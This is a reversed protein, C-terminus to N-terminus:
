EGSLKYVRAYEVGKIWVSHEPQLTYLYALLDKPHDRQMQNIYIVVYDYALYDALTMEPSFEVLQAECGFDISYWTYALPYWSLIQQDCIRPQGRLYLAAENLGEGWGVTMVEPARKLGGMLPNYYTLYYPVNQLTYAVQMGLILVIMAYQIYKKGALRRSEGLWRIVAWWGAASVVDLPLYVPLYYRDFKKAGLSMIVTYVLVFLLLDYMNRRVQPQIESRKFVLLLLALGVGILGAPTSRWLYTLPYFYLYQSGKDADQYADVFQAGGIEGEAASLGYRLTKVLTGVPNAWMAPWLIYVVLLAVAGWVLLPLIAKRWIVQLDFKRLSRDWLFGPSEWLSAITVLGIMPILLFGPSICIFSLGAFAGSAALSIKNRSRLAHLYALVSVFMFTALMGNTHLFRSHAVYFPDFAILLFALTAVAAGFLRWAFYLGVLMALTIFVVVALRATAMYEMSGPGHKQFIQLLKTDGLAIQGVRQYEPFKIQYAIVGAWMTIVGPHGTQYTEAYDREGLAYFFSAARKAWTPEDATVFSGLSVTRPAVFVTILLIAVLITGLLGFPRAISRTVPARPILPTSSEPM